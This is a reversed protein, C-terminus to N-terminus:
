LEECYSRPLGASRYRSGVMKVEYEYGKDEWISMAVVSKKLALVFLNFQAESETFSSWLAKKEFLM